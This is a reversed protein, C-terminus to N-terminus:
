LIKLILTQIAEHEYRHKYIYIYVVVCHLNCYTCATYACTSSPFLGGACTSHKHYNSSHIVGGICTASPCPSWAGDEMPALQLPICYCCAVQVHASVHLQAWTYATNNSCGAGFQVSPHQHGTGRVKLLKHQHHKENWFSAFLQKSYGPRPFIGHVIM